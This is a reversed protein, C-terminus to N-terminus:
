KSLSEQISAAAENAIRQVQEIDRGEVMVRVLPETGSVRVVIRGDRGLEARAKETAARVGPDTYFAIKGEPTVKVNVSVQPFKEMIGALESLKQRRRVLTSLLQIATLQGDGTTAFDRFILHGSQEGGFSYDELLM